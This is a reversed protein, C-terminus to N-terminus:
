LEGGRQMRLLAAKVSEWDYLIRRGGHLRIFPLKGAKRWNALTGPSVPVLQLIAETDLLGGAQQLFKARSLAANEPRGNATGSNETTEDPMHHM